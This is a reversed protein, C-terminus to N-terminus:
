ERAAIAALVAALDLRQFGSALIVHLFLFKFRKLVGRKFTGFVAGFQFHRPAVTIREEGRWLM